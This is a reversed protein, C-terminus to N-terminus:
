LTELAVTTDALASASPWRNQKNWRKALKIEKPMNVAIMSQFRGDVMEFMCFKGDAVSGRLITEPSGQPVGLVQLHSDYQDSWFWPLEPATRERGALTRGLAIGENQANAWSEMRSTSGAIAGPWACPRRAVDGVAYILPDSTRGTVDVVVGDNVDLGCALALEVNPVLGMGLVVLDVSEAQGTSTEAVLGAGDSRAAMSLLTTGFQVEVGERRHMQLLVDSIAPPVSRACLRPGHEILLVDLGMRRATAAVELGIWGGGVVLLRQASRMAERLRVADQMSRLTHVGPLDAGSVVAPRARGGTALVLHSYPLRAEAGHWVTRSSRDIRTVLSSLQLDINLDQAQTASLLCPPAEQHGALVGKSLPPREYPAHPEDGILTIHADPVETRLSRATWAGAQGAGIIVVNM